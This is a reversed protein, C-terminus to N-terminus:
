NMKLIQYKQSVKEIIVFFVVSYITNIIIVYYVQQIFHNIDFPILGLLSYISYTIGLYLFVTTLVIGVTTYVNNVVYLNIKVIGWGLCYFILAHFLLTNTFILDYFLGVLFCYQLYKQNKNHFFPYLLVLTCIVILNSFFGFNYFLALLNELYFAIITIGLVM